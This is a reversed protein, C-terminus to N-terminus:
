ELIFNLKHDCSLCRGNKIRKRGKVSFGNREVLLEGCKPCYSNNDSPMNGLYVYELGVDKAIDKARELLITDTTPIDQM